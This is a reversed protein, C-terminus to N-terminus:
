REAGRRRLLEEKAQYFALIDENVDGDTSVTSNKSEAVKSIKGNGNSGGRPQQQNGGYYNLKSSSSDSSQTPSKDGATYNSVHANISNSSDSMTLVGGRSHLSNYWQDFQTQIHQRCKEIVKKIHEIEPKLVKLREFSDKYVVKEQEIARRYTTEEPTEDDVEESNESHIKQMARERRIAEISNKLYTITNRSQNAREGVTKAETIRDKLLEKNEELSSNMNCRERFWEFSAACDDFINKDTPPPVGFLHRKVIKEQRELQQQQQNKSLQSLSVVQKGQQTVPGGEKADMNNLDQQQSRGVPSSGSIVDDATKGKKVMNVLIAIENDRQLLLSKLDKVQQQLQESEGGGPGSGGRPSEVQSRNKQFNELVLNKMIAFVDKIKTLTLAGINLVSNPDM